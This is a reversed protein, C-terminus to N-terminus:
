PAEEHCANAAEVLYYLSGQALAGPDDWLGGEVGEAHLPTGSGPGFGAPGSSRWVHAHDAGPDSWSLRVGDATRDVALSDAVPAAPPATCPTASVAGVLVLAYDQPRGPTDNIEFARVRVVANGAQPALIRIAENNNLRDAAAGGPSPSAWGNVHGASGTYALGGHLDLTLDLDNVLADVSGPAAAPDTWVLVAALPQQPDSVFVTFAHEQGAASFGTQTDRDDLIVLQEPDGSFSLAKDLHVRGWGQANNPRHGTFDSQMDDAGAILTAKILASSPVFGDSAVAQGTPYFGDTFYQRVLV